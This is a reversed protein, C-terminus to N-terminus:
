SSLAFVSEDFIYTSQEVRCFYFIIKVFRVSVRLTNSITIQPNFINAHFFSIFQTALFSFVERSNRSTSSRFVLSSSLCAQRLKGRRLGGAGARSGDATRQSVDAPRNRRSARSGRPRTARELTKPEAHYLFFLALKYASRKSRFVLSSSAVGVKALNHEVLQAIEANPSGNKENPIAFTPIKEKDGFKKSSKQSIEKFISSTTRKKSVKPKSVM